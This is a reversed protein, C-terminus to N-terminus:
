VFKPAHQKEYDDLISEMIRIREAAEHPTMKDDRVFRPYVGRRMALERRIESIKQELTYSLDL